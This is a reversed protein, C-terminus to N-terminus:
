LGILGDVAKLGQGEPLVIVPNIDLEKFQGEMSVALDSVKLLLDIIAEMDAKPEGRVGQLISYGKIEEIMEEADRRSLPAVRLSVDKFVEVFIGGLGFMIVPGFSPDMNVGVIVERGKPMMEQVLVGDIVLDAGQQRANDMIERYAERLEQENQLSLRVIGLETKHMMQPSMVKLAVPYGIKGAAQVAEEETLALIEDTVPINWQSLLKKSQYETLVTRNENRISELYCASVEKQAQNGRLVPEQYKQRWQNYDYLSRLMKVATELSRYVPIGGDELQKRWHIFESESGVLWTVVPKNHRRYVETFSAIDHDHFYTFSIPLYLVGDVGDDALVADLCHMMTKDLGQCMSEKANHQITSWIDIPNVPELWPPFIERLKAKTEESLAALEMGYMGVLDSGTVSGGGTQTIIAIRKGNMKKPLLSFGKALDLCENLENVRTVGLQKLLGATAGDDGIISGTHSIAAQAALKTRGAKLMVVPKKLSAKRLAKAFRKGDIISELYFAMVETAEDDALYELLDAENVDCRNGITCATSYKPQGHDLTQELLGGVTMGSQSIFAVNGPELPDMEMIFSTNIPPEQVSHGGCNPGWLRMGYPRAIEVIHDQLKKGDPGADAFGGSEIIVAKVGKEGCDKIVQPIFKAPILIVALDVEGPIDQVTPYAKLGCVESLKPNVPYIAGSFSKVLNKVIIYGGKETNASAGIVAVSKPRFFYEINNM